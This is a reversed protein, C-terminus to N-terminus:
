YEEHILRVDNTLVEAFRNPVQLLVYQTYINYRGVQIIYYM